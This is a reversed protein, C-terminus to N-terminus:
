VDKRQAIFLALTFEDTRRWVKLEREYRMIEPLGYLPVLNFSQADLLGRRMADKSIMAPKGPIPTHSYIEEVLGLCYLLATHNITLLRDIDADVFLVQWRRGRTTVAARPWLRRKTNSTAIVAMPTDAPLNHVLDRWIPRATSSDLPRAVLPRIIPLGEIAVLNGTINSNSYARAADVGVWASKFNDALDATADSIVAAAPVGQAIPEGTVACYAGQPITQGDVPPLNFGDAILKSVTTM